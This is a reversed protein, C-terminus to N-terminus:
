MMTYQVLLRAGLQELHAAGHACHVAGVAKRRAAGLTRIQTAAGHGEREM